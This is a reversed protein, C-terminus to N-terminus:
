GALAREDACIDCDPWDGCMCPIHQVHPCDEGLAHCQDCPVELVEARHAACVHAVLDELKGDFHVHWRM